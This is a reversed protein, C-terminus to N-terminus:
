EEQGETGDDGSGPNDGAETLVGAKKLEEVKEVVQALTVTKNFDPDLEKYARIENDTVTIKQKPDGTKRLSHITSYIVVDEEPAYKDHNARRVILRDRWIVKNPGIAKAKDAIRHRRNEARLKLLEEMEEHGFGENGTSREESM